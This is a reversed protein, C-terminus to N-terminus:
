SVPFNSADLPDTGLSVEDGDFWGDGDSDAIGPDTGFAAEDVDPLGDGDTDVAAGADAILPNTGAALEAGDTVGDFDSDANAPDTGYIGTEDVDLIGDLDSDLLAPDVTPVAAVTPVPAPPLNYVDVAVVPEDSGITVVYGTGDNAIPQDPVFFTTAGALLQPQQLLYTGLPLNRWTISGDDNITADTLEVIDGDESILRLDFGDAAQVCNAPDFADISNLCGLVRADITGLRARAVATSTVLPTQNARPTATVISGPRPTATPARTPTPAPTQGPVATEILIVSSSGTSEPEAPEATPSGSGGATFAFVELEYDAVEAGVPILYGGSDGLRYGDDGGGDIGELGRVFFRDFGEKFGSARLIYEGGALGAWTPLGQQETSPGVDRLAEGDIAALELAVAEPDRLCSGPSAAAPEVLPPCAYVTVQVSGISEPVPTAGPTGAAASLPAERGIVAAIVTSPAQGEATLVIDGTFTAADGVRLSAASGDTAEARVAGLTVLVLVPAENGVITTSEGPELLDRALDIDRMGDPTEFPESAFVPLGGGADDAADPPVLDLAFVGAPREGIPILRSIPAAHFFAEAPALLAPRGGEDVLVGGTDVLIFGPGAAPLEAASGPNISHFVVRWAAEDPVAAVGQAIIQAHGSAPSFVEGSQLARTVVSLGPLGGLATILMLAVLTRRGRRQIM